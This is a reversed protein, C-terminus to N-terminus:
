SWIIFAFVYECRYIHIRVFLAIVSRDRRAEFRGCLYVVYSYLRVSGNDHDDRMSKTYLFAYRLKSIFIYIYENIYTSYFADGLKRGIHTHVFVTYM